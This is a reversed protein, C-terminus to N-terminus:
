QRRWKFFYMVLGFLIILFGVAYIYYPLMNKKSKESAVTEEIPEVDEMNEVKPTEEEDKVEGEKEEEKLFGLQTAEEKTVEQKPQGNKFLVYYKDNEIEGTIEKREMLKILENITYTKHEEKEEDNIQLDNEYVDTIVNVETQEERNIQQPTIPISYNIRNPINIDRNPLINSRSPKNEQTKIPRKNQITRSDQKTKKNPEQKSEKEQKSNNDKDRVPDQNNKSIEIPEKSKEPEPDPEPTSGPEPNLEPEPKTEVHEEDSTGSEKDNYVEGNDDAFIHATQIFTASLVGLIMMYKFVQKVTFM